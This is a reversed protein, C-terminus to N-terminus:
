GLFFGIIFNRYDFFKYDPKEFMKGAHKAKRQYSGKGKRKKEIRQRFLKDHLLAMVANDKIVGRTHEYVTENEVASKQKKGM